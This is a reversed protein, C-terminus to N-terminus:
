KGLRDPNTLQYKISPSNTYTKRGELGPPTAGRQPEFPPLGTTLATELNTHGICLRM